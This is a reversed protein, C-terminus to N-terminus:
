YKEVVVTNNSVVSEGNKLKIKWKQDWCCATASTGISYDWSNGDLFRVFLRLALRDATLVVGTPCWFGTDTTQEEQKSILKNNNTPYSGELFRWSYVEASVDKNTENKITVKWADAPLSSGCLTVLFCSMVMVKKM